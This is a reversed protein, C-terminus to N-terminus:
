KRAFARRLAENPEAPTLLANVLHEQDTKTLLILSAGHTPSLAEIQAVLRLRLQEKVQGRTRYFRRWYGLDKELARIARVLEAVKEDLQRLNVVLSRLQEVSAAEFVILTDPDSFRALMDELRGDSSKLLHLVRWHTIALKSHQHLRVLAQSTDAMISHHRWELEDFTIAASVRHTDASIAQAQM